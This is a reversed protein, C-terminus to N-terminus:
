NGIILQIQHPEGDTEIRRNQMIVLEKGASDLLEAKIALNYLGDPLKVQHEIIRAPIEPRAAMGRSISADGVKTYTVAISRLKTQKPARYSMETAAQNGYYLGASVLGVVLFLRALRKRWGGTSNQKSNESAAAEPKEANPSESTSM